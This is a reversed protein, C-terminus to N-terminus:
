KWGVTLLDFDEKKIEFFYKEDTTVWYLEKKENQKGAKLKIVKDGYEILYEYVIKSNQNFGPLYAISKLDSIKEIFESNKWKGDVPVEEGNKNGYKVSIKKIQNLALNTIVKKSWYDITSLTQKTLPKEIKYVIKDNEKRVYTGDYSKTNSGIELRRGNIDLVTTEAEGIGFEAFKEPNTSVVETLSIESVGKLFNDVVDNSAPVTGFSNTILWYGDRKELCLLNICFKDTEKPFYFETKEKKAFLQMKIALLISVSALFVFSIIVPNKIKMKGIKIKEIEPM